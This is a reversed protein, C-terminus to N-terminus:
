FSQGISFYVQFAKDLHKRPNFPFAVDLRIPGVPTHYRVGIGASQLQKHNFQPLTPSYVNGIDYFLVIGFPDYVRMRAELSFVMLSRGGVPKNKELPSVTLYHYGRLLNDNGAYFRESPPLSDRPAGMISGFMARGALIFKNGADLPHYTTINLSNKVYGFYPTQTQLTPTSKLHVTIGKSPDMLRDTGNWFAQMPVKWLTYTRNGNVSGTNHLKTYMFGSSIRLRDNVQREVIASLSLSFERYAKVDEHEIEAAIILDQRPRLFDPLVYRVSGEQKIQWINASYSIKDGIGSINRHEWDANVGFGLDTAYGVGFGISRRKANTVSIHMPLSGDEEPEEDHTINISSFLGSLELANITRQVMVPCYVSGRHWAIKRCFFIPLLDDSGCIDTKGFYALPGYNLTITVSVTQNAVDATVQRKSIKALPYGQKELKEIIAEEAEIIAAPYAPDGIEIGVNSSTIPDYADCYETDDGEPVISFTAFSYVPGTEIVLQIDIPCVARNVVPKIYANYYAQSQLVKHLILLDDDIRRQLGAATLPPTEILSLLQSEINLLNITNDDNVGKFELQYAYDSDACVANSVFLLILIIIYNYRILM